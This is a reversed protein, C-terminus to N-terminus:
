FNEKRGFPSATNIISGVVKVDDPLLQFLYELNKKLYFLNM